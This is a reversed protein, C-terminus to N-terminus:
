EKSTDYFEVIKTIALQKDKRFRIKSKHIFKKVAPKRDALADLVASKSKVPYYTGDRFIIYRDNSRFVTHVERDIIEDIMTKQWKIYFSTKGVYRAEYFGSSPSGNNITDHVLRVFHHGSHWFAIVKESILELKIGGYPHEIVLKDSVLDYLMSVKTYWQGDYNVSGDTWDDTIFFPQGVDNHHANYEKYQVGNYLHAEVGQSERYFEHANAIATKLFATDSSQSYATGGLFFSLSLFIACLSYTM